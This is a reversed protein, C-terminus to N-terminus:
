EEENTNSKYLENELRTAMHLVIEARNNDIADVIAYLIDILQEKTVFENANNM